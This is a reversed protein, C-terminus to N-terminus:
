RKLDVSVIKSVGPEEMTVGYLMDALEMTMKNHTVLVFQSAMALERLLGLYRGVNTDDLPADVEDLICFPPPRVQFLAFLLAVATLAKEGGSLLIISQLKKGPPQAVIEVGAELVDDSDTLVLRARGGGFLRPFMAEFKEQLMAFTTRFRDRAERNMKQIARRLSDITKELDERQATLFDYRQKNEEYEDIATLNVEGMKEIRGRIELLHERDEETPPEGQGHQLEVEELTMQFREDVQDGLHRLEIELESHNVKAENADAALRDREIRAAKLGQERESRAASGAERLNKLRELEERLDGLQERTRAQEERAATEQGELHRMRENADGIENVLRSRREELQLMENGLRALSRLAAERKEAMAATRVRLSTLEENFTELRARLDALQERREEIVREERVKAQEAEEIARRAAGAEVALGTIVEEAQKGNRELGALRHRTRELDDEVRSLDRERNVLELEKDHSAQQMEELQVSLAVTRQSLQERRERALKYQQDLERVKDELEKILRKKRLIEREPSEDSGGSVAGHADVVDGDLSVITKRFGNAGWLDLARALDDVVVVDGLLYRAIREYPEQWSVLDLLRGVVGRQNLDPFPTPEPERVGLPIFSCRGRAERKLYEIAAVGERHSEVIVNQLREGLVAAMAPEYRSPTEFLDAVVGYIRRQEAEPQGPEQASDAASDEPPKPTADDDESAPAAHEGFLRQEERMVTRVGRGFGEFSRALEKLSELRSRKEALEERLSLVQAEATVREAELEDLLRVQAERRQGLAVHLQRSEGLQEAMSGRQGKLEEAGRAVEEREARIRALEGRAEVQRQEMTELKSRGESVASVAALLRARAEDMSAGVSAQEGALDSQVRQRERLLSELSAAQEGLAKANQELKSREEAAERTRDKLLGIESAREANRETIAGIEQQGLEAQRELREGLAQLDYVREQATAVAAEQAEAERRAVDLESELADVRAATQQETRSLEELKRSAGDLRATLDRFGEAALKLEIERAEAKFKKYREAKKAQRNLSIVTRKVETIIDNVRDLNNRTNKMKLEAQHRRAKFRTIGAAEDVIERREAPRASIMQSIQGQSIMSYANKGAGTGLFLENVDRLRVPIRNILYESDGGRFLRRTVEVDTIGQLTEPPDDSEDFLFRCTVEAMGLPGVKESGNFIVDEMGSGRLQTPRQEGMSWRLADLINSKGCGNPGVVGTVPHDFCLKVPDRFSKFGCIELERIRM